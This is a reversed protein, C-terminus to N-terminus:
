WTDNLIVMTMSQSLFAAVNGLGVHWGDDDCNDPGLYFTWKGGGLKNPRPIGTRAIWELSDRFNQYKYQTSPITVNEHYDTYSQLITDEIISKHQDLYNLVQSIVRNSSSSTASFSPAHNCVNNNNNNNNNTTQQLLRLDVEEASITAEGGEPEESELDQAHCAIKNYSQYFVLLQFTLLILIFSYRPRLPVSLAIMM